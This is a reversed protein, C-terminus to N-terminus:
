HYPSWRSRCEKGVRREESRDPARRDMHFKSKTKSDSDDPDKASLLQAASPETPSILVSFRDFMNNALRQLMPRVRQVHLFDTASFQESIYGNIQGLPD